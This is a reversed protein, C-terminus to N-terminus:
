CNTRIELGPSEGVTAAREYGHSRRSEIVATNTGQRPGNELRNEKEENRQKSVNPWPEM